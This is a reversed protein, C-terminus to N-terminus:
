EDEGDGDIESATRPEAMGVDIHFLGLLAAVLRNYFESWFLGFVADHSEAEYESDNDEEPHSEM